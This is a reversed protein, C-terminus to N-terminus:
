CVSTSPVLLSSVYSDEPLLSLFVAGPGFCETGLSCHRLRGMEGGARRLGSLCHGCLASSKCHVERFAGGPRSSDGPGPEDACASSKPGLTAWRGMLETSTMLGAQEQLEAQALSCFSCGWLPLVSHLGGSAPISGQGTGCSLRKRFIMERTRRDRLSGQDQSTIPNKATLRLLVLEGSPFLNM